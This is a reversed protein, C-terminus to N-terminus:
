SWNLALTDDWNSFSSTHQPPPPLPSLFLNKLLPTFPLAANWYSSRLSNRALTRGPLTLARELSVADGPDKAVRGPPGLLLGALLGTLGPSCPRRRPSRPSTGVARRERQSGCVLRRGPQPKPGAGARGVAVTEAARQGLTRFVLSRPPPRRTRRRRANVDSAREAREALLLSAAPARASSPQGPLSAGSTSLATGSSSASATLHGVLRWTPSTQPIPLPVSCLSGSGQM